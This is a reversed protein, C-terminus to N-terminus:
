RYDFRPSNLYNYGDYVRILKDVYKDVDLKYLTEKNLSGIPLNNKTQFDILAKKTSLDIISTIELGYGKDQLALQICKPYNVDYMPSCLIERMDTWSNGILYHLKINSLGDYNFPNFAPTKIIQARKSVYHYDFVFTITSDIQGNEYNVKKIKKTFLKTLAPIVEFDITLCESSEVALCVKDPM